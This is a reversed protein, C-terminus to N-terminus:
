LASKTSRTSPLTPASGTVLDSPSAHRWYSGGIDVALVDNETTEIVRVSILEGPKPVSCGFNQALERHVLFDGGLILFGEPQLNSRSGGNYRVRKMYDQQQAVTAITNRHVRRGEAQRFFEDLRAQGARKSYISEIAKSSLQLLVNPAFEANRFLWKIALRGDSSLTTKGDRNYKDRRHAPSVRVLGLSWVSNEDSATAILSIRDWSEPPLMWGGDRFSYKCDVESGAIEYDLIAGDKFGFERQLNIEILTGFHTKETKYLEDWRYRGTRQGDYLQDFTARFVEAFRAGDPDIQLLWGAVRELESDPAIPPIDDGDGEFSITLQTGM